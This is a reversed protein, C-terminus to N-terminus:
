KCVGADGLMVSARAVYENVAVLNASAEAKLRDVKDAWQTGAYGFSQTRMNLAEPWLPLSGLSARDLDYFLFDPMKVVEPQKRPKSLPSLPDASLPADIFFRTETAL